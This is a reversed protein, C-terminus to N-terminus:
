ARVVPGGPELERYVEAEFRFVRTTPARWADPPLGAKECTGDLFQSRDWRQETAVQPLLLGRARGAEVTLGHRGVEISGPRGALPVAEFPGLLSVEAVLRRLEGSSVPHFRPDELAAAVAAERVGDALLLVPQPFGICGRLRHVPHEHWSVFVGRRERFIAPLPGPVSAGGPEGLARAVAARALRVAVTGRDDEVVGASPPRPPLATAKASTKYRVVTPASGIGNGSATSRRSLLFIQM